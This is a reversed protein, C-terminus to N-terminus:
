LARNASPKGGPPQIYQALDWGAMREPQVILVGFIDPKLDSKWVLQPMRVVETRANM